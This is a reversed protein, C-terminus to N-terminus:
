HEVPAVGYATGKNINDYGITDENTLFSDFPMNLVASRFFTVGPPNGLGAYTSIAVRNGKFWHILNKSQNPKLMLTKTAQNDPIDFDSPNINPDFIDCQICDARFFSYKANANKNYLNINVRFQGKFPHASDATLEIQYNGSPKVFTLVMGTVDISGTQDGVPDKFTVTFPKALAPSVATFSFIELLTVMQLISWTLKNLSPRVKKIM